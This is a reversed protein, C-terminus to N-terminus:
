RLEVMGKVSEWVERPLVKEMEKQTLWRFETLGQTNGSLDAQGAMIRGKLYFIKDGRRVFKKSKSESEPESEPAPEPESESEVVWEPEVVRHAVPVRGVIWTNMNVGAAEQLARAATHHLAEETTVQGMPFGWEKTKGNKVVLYLTEDLKRDLRTKDNKEDAETRRPMPKEVPVIEEPAILEGDESVRVEADKLLNETLTEPSSATSGVLVEDNWAMRGRPNYRGIDKAPVGHREKIKIRWELDHATDQKFYYDKRFPAVLRENLRKQYLYFSSEFPTPLRTLLPPRTLIVASKIHYPSPGPSPKPLPPQQTPQQQEPIPSAAAAEAAFTRRSLLTPFPTTTTTRLPTASRTCQLCVRQSGRLLAAAGRGPAASMM